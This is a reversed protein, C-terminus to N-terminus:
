QQVEKNDTRKMADKEALWALFVTQALLICWFFGGVSVNSCQGGAWAPNIMSNWLIYSYLATFLLGILFATGNLKIIKVM